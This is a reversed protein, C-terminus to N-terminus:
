QVEARQRLEEARADLQVLLQDLAASTPEVRRASRTLDALTSPWKIGAATIVCVVREDQRLTGHEVLRLAAALPLASAPEGCLGERGLLRTAALIAEDVPTRETVPRQQHAAHETTNFEEIFTAHAAQIAEFTKTDDFAAQSLRVQVKFQAEILNQWPKGKDIYHPTIGLANLVTCYAQATFVKGNDSVIGTPCGYDSVAAALIQLIAIEDQYESVMGALMKRSYGELICISYVWAGDLKRLYRVDIFWYQHRYEPHYRIQKVEGDANQPEKDSRWPPPV